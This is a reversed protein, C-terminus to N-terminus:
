KGEPRIMKPRLTVSLFLSNINKLPLVWFPKVPIQVRLDDLKNLILITFEFLYSVLMNENFQVEITKSM